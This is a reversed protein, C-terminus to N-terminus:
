NDLEMDSHASGGDDDTNPPILWEINLGVRVEQKFRLACEEPNFGQKAKKQLTRQRTCLNTLVRNSVHRVYSRM